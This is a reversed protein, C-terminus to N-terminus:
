KVDWFYPKRRVAQIKVKEGFQQEIKEEMWKTCRDLIHCKSCEGQMLVTVEDGDRSLYTIEGGDGQIRPKLVNNIYDEM